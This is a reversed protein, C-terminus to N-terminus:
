DTDEEPNKDTDKSFQFKLPKKPEQPEEPEPESESISEPEEDDIITLESDDEITLDDINLDSLDEESDESIEEPQWEEEPSPESATEDVAPEEAPKPEPQPKPEPEPRPEPQPPSETQAETPTKEGQLAKRNSPILLKIKSEAKKWIYIIKDKTSLKEFPIQIISAGETSDKVAPTDFIGLTKKYIDTQHAPTWCSWGKKLLHTDGKIERSSIKDKLTEEDVPGIKEGNLVFTWESM